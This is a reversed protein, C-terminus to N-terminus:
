IYGDFSPFDCIRFANGQLSRQLQTQGQMLALYGGGQMEEPQSIADQDLNRMTRGQDQVQMARDQGRHQWPQDQNSDPQDPNCDGIVQEESTSEAETEMREPEM